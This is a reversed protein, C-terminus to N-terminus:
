FLASAALEAKIEEPFENGDISTRSSSLSVGLDLNVLWLNLGAGATYVLGIDSEAINKYAGARLQLIKLINIEAGAGLNQSKYGAGVTTDNKTIDYDLALTVFSLPKYAVGARYQAKEKFSDEDGAVLPTMEFSPSNINRGVLGLRLNDGFRYMVGLDLGFAQSEKYSKTADSLADGFDTNFIDIKSNYVRAKLLKINGGVALDPSLPHGYTFPVETIFAGKFILKSTNNAFTGGTTAAVTALGAVTETTSVIDAPVAVGSTQIGNDLANIFGISQASTWGLSTQLYTNLETEQATSLGAATGELVGTPCAPCGYNAPASFDSVTFTGGAGTAVPSINVLDLEGKASVDDFVYGAVGFRGVQVRLGGNLLITLARNKNDNFTKLQNVLSLFDSVGAPTIAGNDLSDYNFKAVKDLEEGLNEHVQYGFGADLVGSFDRKGYDGGEKNGFFGYAAPNWYSATADNAVAVNAGGMGLARPGVITWERAESRSPILFAAFVASVAILRKIRM